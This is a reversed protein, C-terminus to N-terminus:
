LIDIIDFTNKINEAIAFSNHPNDIFTLLIVHIDSERKHALVDFPIKCDFYKSTYFILDFSAKSSMGLEWHMISYHLYFLSFFGAVLSLQVWSGQNVLGTSQWQAISASIFSELIKDYYNMSYITQYIKFWTKFLRLM